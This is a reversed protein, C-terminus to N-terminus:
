TMDMGLDRGVEKSLKARVDAIVDHAHERNEKNIAKRENKLVNDAGKIKERIEPSVLEDLVQKKLKVKKHKLKGHKIIRQIKDVSGQIHDSM